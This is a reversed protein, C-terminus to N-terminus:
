RRPGAPSPGLGSPELAGLAPFPLRSFTQLSMSFSLTVIYLAMSVRNFECSSACPGEGGGGGVQVPEAGLCIGKQWRTIYEMYPTYIKKTCYYFKDYHRLTVWTEINFYRLLFDM